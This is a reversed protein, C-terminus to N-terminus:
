RAPRALGSLPWPTNGYGTIESGCICCGDVTMKMEKAVYGSVAKGDRAATL